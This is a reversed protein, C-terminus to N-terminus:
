LGLCNRDRYFIATADSWTMLAYLGRFDLRRFGQQRLRDLGPAYEKADANDFLIVGTEKLLELGTAACELRRVGDIM